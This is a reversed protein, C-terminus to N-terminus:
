GPAEWRDRAAAESIPRSLHWGDAELASLVRDMAKAYRQRGGGNASTQCYAACMVQVVREREVQMLM